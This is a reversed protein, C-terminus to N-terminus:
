CNSRPFFILCAHKFYARAPFRFCPIKKKLGLTVLPTGVFNQIVPLTHSHLCILKWNSKSLVPITLNKFVLLFITGLKPDPTPSAEKASSESWYRFNTDFLTRLDSDEEVLCVVGDLRDTTWTSVRTSNSTIWYPNRYSWFVQYLCLGVLNKFLFKSDQIFNLNYFAASHSHPLRVPTTPPTWSFVWSCESTRWISLCLFSQHLEFTFMSMMNMRWQLSWFYAVATFIILKPM